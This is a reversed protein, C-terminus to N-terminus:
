SLQIVNNPTVIASTAAENVDNVMQRAITILESVKDDVVLNVAMATMTILSNFLDNMAEVAKPSQLEHYILDCCALASAAGLIITMEAETHTAQLEALRSDGLATAREHQPTM